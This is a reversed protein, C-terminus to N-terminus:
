RNILVLKDYEEETNIISFGAIRQSAYCAHGHSTGIKKM